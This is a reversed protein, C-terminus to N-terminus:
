DTTAYCTTCLIAIHIFTSVSIVTTHLPLFDSMMVVYM